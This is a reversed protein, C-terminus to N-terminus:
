GRCDQQCNAGALSQIHRIGVGVGHNFDPNSKAIPYFIAWLLILGAWLAAAGILMAVRTMPHMPWFVPPHEPKSFRRYLRVYGLLSGALTIPTLFVGVLFVIVQNRRERDPHLRLFQQLEDPTIKFKDFITLDIKEPASNQQHNDM